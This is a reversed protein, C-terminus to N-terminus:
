ISSALSPAATLSNSLDRRLFIWDRDGTRGSFTLEDAKFPTGELDARGIYKQGLGKKVYALTVHPCYSPQTDTHPLVSLKRNLRHLDDSHVQLHVVDHTPTEFIATRGLEGNVAPEGQITDRVRDSKTDHM